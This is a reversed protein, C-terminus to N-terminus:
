TILHAVLASVGVSVVILVIAWLRAQTADLAKTSRAFGNQARYAECEHKTVMQAKIAEVTTKIAILIDHDHEPM